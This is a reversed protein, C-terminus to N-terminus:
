AGVCTESLLHDLLECLADAEIEIAGIQAVHRARNGRSACSRIFLDNTERDYGTHGRAPEAPFFAFAVRAIVFVAPDAGLRAAAALLSALFCLGAERL